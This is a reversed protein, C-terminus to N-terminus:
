GIIATADFAALSVSKIVFVASGLDTADLLEQAEMTAFLALSARFTWTPDHCFILDWQSSLMPHPPTYARRLRTSAFPHSAFPHPPSHLCHADALPPPCSPVRTLQRIPHSPTTTLTSHMVLRFSTESPLSSVFLCLFWQTTVFPMSLSLQRLHQSLAPLHLEVLQETVQRDVTHGIMSQVYHDPLIEEVVHALLWFAQEEGAPGDATFLLLAAAIFNMGQCYAVEPNRRAYAILVRRMRACFEPTLRKHEPFTRRVDLDIAEEVKAPVGQTALREYLQPQANKHEEAGSLLLWATARHESPIGESVAAVFKPPLPGGARYSKKRAQSLLEPWNAASAPKARTQLSRYKSVLNRPVPFGHADRVGADPELEDSLRM